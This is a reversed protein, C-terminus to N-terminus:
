KSKKSKKSIKKDTDKVEKNSKKKLREVVEELPLEKISKDEPKNAPKNKDISTDVSKNKKYISHFKSNYNIYEGFKDEFDKDYIINVNDKLWRRGESSSILGIKFSEIILQKEEEKDQYRIGNWVLTCVGKFGNEEKIRSMIQVNWDEVFDNIQSQFMILMMEIQQTLTSKNTAEGDGSILALPSGSATASSSLLQRMVKDVFDLSEYKLTEMHMTQPMSIGSAEKLNAIIYDADDMLQPTAEHTSDGVYIIPLSTAKVKIAEVQIKMTELRDVIDQYAPEILGLYDYNNDLRNLPFVAVRKKDLYTQGKKLTFGMDRLAKPVVDGQPMGKAQSGFDMMFGYPIKNKDLILNRQKDRVYDIRSANIRRLDAVGFEKGDKEYPIIEVFGAGYQAKDRNIEKFLRRNSSRDGHQMMGKFLEEYEKCNGVWNYGAKMIINTYLNLMNFSISDQMCVERLKNKAVRTVQTYQSDATKSIKPKQNTPTKELTVRAIGVVEDLFSM